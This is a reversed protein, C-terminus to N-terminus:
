LLRINFMDMDRVLLLSCPKANNVPTAKAM